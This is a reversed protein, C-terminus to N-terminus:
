QVRRRFYKELALLQPKYTEKRSTRDDVLVSFMCDSRARAIEGALREFDAFPLRGADALAAAPRAAAGLEDARSWFRRTVAVAGDEMRLELLHGAGEMCNPRGFGGRGERARRELDALFAPDGPSLPRLGLSQMLSAVWQKLRAVQEELTGSSSRAKALDAQCADLRVGCAASFDITANKSDVANKAVLFMFFLLILIMETLAIGFVLSSRRRSEAAKM